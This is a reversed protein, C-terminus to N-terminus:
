DHRQMWTGVFDLLQKEEPSVLTFIPQRETTERTTYRAQCKPCERRRRYHDNSPSWRSDKVKMAGSYGCACSWQASTTIM